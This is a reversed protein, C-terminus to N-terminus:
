FRLICHPPSYAQIYNVRLCSPNEREVISVSSVAADTTTASIFPMLSNRPYIPICWIIGIGKFTSLWAANFCSPPSNQDFAFCWSALILNTTNCALHPIRFVSYQSPEWMDASIIVFASWAGLDSSNSFRMPIRLVHSPLLHAQRRSSRFRAHHLLTPFRSVNFGNCMIM